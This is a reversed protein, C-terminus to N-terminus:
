RNGGKSILSARLARQILVGGRGEAGGSTGAATGASLSALALRRLPPHLRGPLHFLGDDHGASPHAMLSQGQALYLKLLALVVYVGWPAVLGASMVKALYKPRFFQQDM